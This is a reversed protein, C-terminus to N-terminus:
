GAAARSDGPRRPRPATRTSTLRRADDGRVQLPRIVPVLRVMPIGARAIVIEEGQRAREILRSLTTKAEYVDLQAM